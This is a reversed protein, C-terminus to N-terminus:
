KRFKAEIISYIDHFVKSRQEIENEMMKNMHNMWWSELFEIFDKVQLMKNKWILGVTPMITLIVLAVKLESERRELNIFKCNQSHSKHEKFPDDEADWGDLEKGCYFCACDDGGDKNPNCKYFGAAALQFLLFSVLFIACSNDFYLFRVYFVAICRLFIHFATCFRINNSSNNRVAFKNCASDDSFKWYKFSNLREQEFLYCSKNNVNM